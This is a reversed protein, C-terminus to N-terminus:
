LTLEFACRVAELHKTFILLVVSTLLGKRLSLRGAVLLRLFLLELFEPQM